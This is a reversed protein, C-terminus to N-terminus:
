VGNQNPSRIKSKWNEIMLKCKVQSPHFDLVFKEKLGTLFKDNLCNQFSNVSRSLFKELEVRGWCVFETKVFICKRIPFTIKLYERRAKIILTLAVYLIKAQMKQRIKSEEHCRSFVIKRSFFGM